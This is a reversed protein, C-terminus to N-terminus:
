ATRNERKKRIVATSYLNQENHNVTKEGPILCYTWIMIDISKKRKLKKLKPCATQFCMNARPEQNLFLFAYEWTNTQM